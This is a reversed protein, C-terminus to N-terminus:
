IYWPDLTIKLIKEKKNVSSSIPPFPEVDRAAELLRMVARAAAFWRIPVDTSHKDILLKAARFVDPEDIM